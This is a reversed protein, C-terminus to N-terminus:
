KIYGGDKMIKEVGLAANDLAQKATKEGTFVSQVEIAITNGIQVWEPYYVPRYDGRMINMMAQTTKLWNGNDWNYVQKYGTDEFVSNRTVDSRSGNAAMKKQLESSTAWKIFEWAAQKHKSLANINLSAVAIAPFQGELGAPVPAYGIKGAVKSLDGTEFVTAFNTADITMAAQGQQIAVQVENWGMNVSGPPAFKMLDAFLQTAKVGAESNFIPQHSTNFYDGGFSHLFMPWIYGNSAQDRNGKLAIGYVGNKTLKGAADLLEDMTTPVKLNAAAFLDKRYMLASSEGYFPLGYTKGEYKQSDIFGKMFDDIQSDADKAIYSDLPELWKARANRAVNVILTMIVDYDATGAVFSAEVKKNLEAQPLSDIVVKIGTAAEFEPLFEILRNTANHSQMAVTITEGKLSTSETTGGAVLPLASLVILMALVLVIKHAKM